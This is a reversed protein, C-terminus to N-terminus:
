ESVYIRGVVNFKQRKAMKMAFFSFAITTSLFTMFFGFYASAFSASLNLSGSHSVLLHYLSTLPIFLLALFLCVTGFNSRNKTWLLFFAAVFSISMLPNSFFWLWGDVPRFTDELRFWPFFLGIVGTVLLTSVLVQQKFENNM